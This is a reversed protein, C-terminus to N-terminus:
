TTLSRFTGTRQQSLFIDNGRIRGEVVVRSAGGGGMQAASAIISKMQDPRVIHETGHLMVPYGSQPGSVTGGQSFGLLKKFGGLFGEGFSLGGGGGLAMLIGQFIAAQIAAKAIDIAIQKFMNGVAEGLSAGNQMATFLGNVSNMLTNTLAAAKSERLQAEYDLQIANREALVNNLTNNATSQLQLNQLDKTATNNVAGLSIVGQPGQKAREANFRDLIPLLAKMNNMYNEFNGDIKPAPPASGTKDTKFKVVNDAYTKGLADMEETLAAIAIKNKNIIANQENQIMNFQDAMSISSKVFQTGSTQGFDLKMPQKVKAKDQEAKKIADTSQQELKLVELQKAEILSQAARAKAAKIIAASLLDYAKAAKGALIEEDSFNKLYEGYNDRLEKIADKRANLPINANIATNYLLQLQTKEKALGALYEDNAKTAEETAKKSDGMGRTWAGFGIQAFTLATVIASFALGAAGAAPVLQTLNNAIGNFGYPLDQIVRSLGTFNTGMKTVAGGTAAGAASVKNLSTVTENMGAIAQKNDATLVIKLTEVAM